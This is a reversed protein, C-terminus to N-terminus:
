RGLLVLSLAPVYTVLLVGIVLIVYFPWTDRFVKLVPRDFRYSSLFLNEGMPPTLYGLEMNALFIMGLHAPDIGYATGLPLILPVVVFLASYIDMLAGVVLLFVNLILLFVLPSTITGQMTELIRAPIEADILFNTLGLAMSLIILFGGVLSACDAAVAPLRRLPDIDRHVFCEVLAAYLATMAASEVPTMFGGFLGVLVLIPLLLEWKARWLAAGARRAEFPIKRGGGRRAQRVGYASVLGLLLLGPLLGARFLDAISQNSQVGYLIVPLSPPFLLGISGSVTLLGIAFDEPYNDAILVPLLLGGLALITVGSAGTFSTFFAFLVTTVIATGGPLWGFLSSFVDLLRGSAGGAALIYGAFTFLPVAPLGPFTVMRHTEAPVSAVPSGQGWFLLLAAGGIVTFLPMGVAAAAVLVVLAMTAAGEGPTVAREFLFPLVLGSAAWLRGPWSPSARHILHGAIALSGIPIIAVVLWRPVGPILDGADKEAAVLDLSAAAIWAVVATALAAVVTRAVAQFREPLLLASSLALLQDRRAALIAGLFAVWLTLNQVVLISGPVGVGFLRRGFVEIMPLLVMIGLPLIALAAETRHLVRDVRAAASM